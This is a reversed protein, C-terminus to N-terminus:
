SADAVRLEQLVLDVERLLVEVDVAERTVMEPLAPM